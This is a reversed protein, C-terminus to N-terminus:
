HLFLFLTFTFVITATKIKHWVLISLAQFIDPKRIASKQWKSCYRHAVPDAYYSM